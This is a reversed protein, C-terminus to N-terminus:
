SFRMAVGPEFEMPVGPEFEIEPSLPRRWENGGIVGDLIQVIAPGFLTILAGAPDGPDSEVRFAAQFDLRGANAVSVGGDRAVDIAADAGAPGRFPLPDSWQGAPGRRIFVSAENTTAGADGDLSLFSFDEAEADFGARDAFVGIENPSFSDGKDGREGKLDNLGDILTQVKASMRSLDSQYRLRYTADTVDAGPWDDSLTLSANNEVSAIPIAYGKLFLTDGERFSASLWATGAGSLTPTGATISVTGTRYDSTAM